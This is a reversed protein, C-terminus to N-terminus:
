SRPTATSSAAKETRLREVLERMYRVRGASTRLASRYKNPNNGSYNKWAQSLRAHEAEVAKLDKEAEELQRPPQRQSM